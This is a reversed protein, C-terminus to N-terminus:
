GDSQLETFLLIIRECPFFVQSAGSIAAAIRNCTSLLDPSNRSGLAEPLGYSLLALSFACLLLTTLAMLFVANPPSFGKLSLPRGKYLGPPSCGLWYWRGESALNTVSVEHHLTILAGPFPSFVPNPDSWEALQKRITMM